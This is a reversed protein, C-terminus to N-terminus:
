IRSYGAKVDEYISYTQTFTAIVLNDAQQVIRLVAQAQAGEPSNENPEVGQFRIVKTREVGTNNLDSSVPIVTDGAAIKSFDLYFFDRTGDEWPIPVYTGPALSSGPM